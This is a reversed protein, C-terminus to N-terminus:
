TPELTPTSCCMPGSVSTMSEQGIYDWDPDYLEFGVRGDSHTYLDWESDVEDKAVIVSRNTEGQIWASVSFAQDTGGSVFTFDNHDPIDIHDSSYAGDFDQCYGIQGGAAEVNENQTGNHGDSTSEYHTGTTQEDVVDENLHWVGEYNSTWVNAADEQSSASPNGYYLYFDTNASSSLTPIKVWAILKGTSGDYEDIEHSLKSGDSSRFQLDDGDPQVPGGNGTDLLDTDTVSVLVPFNSLTASVKTYDVSILKKYKWTNASPKFWAELTLQDTIDLAAADPVSVFDDTGDFDLANGPSQGLIEVSGITMATMLIIITLFKTRM